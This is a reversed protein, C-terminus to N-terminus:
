RIATAGTPSCSSAKTTRVGSACEPQDPWRSRRARRARRRRRGHRTVLGHRDLVAHVTSIAPCPRGPLAPPAARPDEPRGLHSVGEEAPRDAERGGDAASERPPRAPPQPRDAGGRRLRQLARLDQLGNEPLDRVGRVSAAMKEGDLLRAIFRLREDVVHCEKWPM